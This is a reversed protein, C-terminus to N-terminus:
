DSESGSAVVLEEKDVEQWYRVEEPDAHAEVTVACPMACCWGCCRPLVDRPLVNRFCCPVCSLVNCLLDHPYRITLPCHQELPSM